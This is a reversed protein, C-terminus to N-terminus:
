SFFFCPLFPSFPNSYLSSPFKRLPWEVLPLCTIWLSLSDAFFPPECLFPWWAFVKSRPKFRLFPVDFFPCWSLLSDPKIPMIIINYITSITLCLIMHRSINTIFHYHIKRPFFVENTEPWLPTCTADVLWPRLPFCRFLPLLWPCLFHFFPFDLLLYVAGILEPLSFFDQDDSYKM